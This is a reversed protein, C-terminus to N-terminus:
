GRDQHHACFRQGVKVSYGLTFDHASMPKRSEPQLKMIQVCGRGCKVLLGDSASKPLALVQGCEAQGALGACDMAVLVDWIKLGLDDLVSSAGPFPNLGRVLNRVNEASMSWDICCDEKSLKPAYTAKSHDQPIRPADGAEILDLTEILLRAGVQSLTDHLEGATMSETIRVREQLIMDGTDWGEDMYMTTIGTYDQGDMIARNIPAAGRYEPLLSGHVNICGYKPMELIERPIKQGYAVVVIADPSLERLRSISDADAIREPQLIPICHCQATRKVPCWCLQMGRGVPRDPQTVIAVVEHKSQLLAKLSADAFDPTGIFVVRLGSVKM